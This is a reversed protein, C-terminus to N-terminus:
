MKKLSTKILLEKLLKIGKFRNKNNNANINIVRIENRKLNKGLENRMNINKDNRM